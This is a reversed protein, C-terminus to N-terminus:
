TGAFPFYIGDAPQHTRKTKAWILIEHKEKIIIVILCLWSWTGPSLIYM